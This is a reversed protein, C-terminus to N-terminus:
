RCILKFKWFDVVSQNLLGKEIIAILGHWLVVVNFM